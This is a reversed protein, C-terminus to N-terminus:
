GALSYRINSGDVMSEFAATERLPKRGDSNEEENRGGRRRERRRGRGEEGIEGARYYM